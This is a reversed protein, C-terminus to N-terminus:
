CGYNGFVLTFEETIPTGAANKAPMWAHMTSLLQLLAKDIKADSTSRIVQPKLIEGKESVSFRIAAQEIKELNKKGPFESLLHKSLYDTFASYGGAMAAEHDPIVTFVYNAEKVGNDGDVANIFDKFTFFLKVSIETGPDAQILVNKQEASLAHGKSRASRNFGQHKVTIEISKYDILNEFDAKAHVYNDQPFVTMCHNGRHLKLLDTMKVYTKSDCHFYHEFDPMVECIFNARAIKEQKMVPSFRGALNIHLGQSLVAGSYLLLAFSFMVNKM